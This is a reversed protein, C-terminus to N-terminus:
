FTVLILIPRICTCSTQERQLARECMQMAFERLFMHRFKQTGFDVFPHLLTYDATRNLDANTVRLSLLVIKLLYIWM